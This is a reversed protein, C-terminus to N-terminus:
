ESIDQPVWAEHNCKQVFVVSDKMEVSCDKVATAEEWRKLYDKMTIIYRADSKRM